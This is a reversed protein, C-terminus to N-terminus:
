ECCVVHSKELVYREGTAPEYKVLAGFITFVIRSGQIRPAQSKPPPDFAQPSIQSEISDDIVTECPMSECKFDSTSKRLVLALKYADECLRRISEFHIPSTDKFPEPCLPEMFTAIYEAFLRPMKNRGGLWNACEVTRRRWEHIDSANGIDNNSGASGYACKKQPLGKACSFLEEEFNALNKELDGGLGFNPRQFIGVQLMKFIQARMILIKKANPVSQHMWSMKFFAKQEEFLPGKDIQIPNPPNSYQKQVIRQIQERLDCFSKIVVADMPEDDNQGHKIFIDRYKTNQKQLQQKQDEVEALRKQLNDTQKTIDKKEQEARAAEKILSKNASQLECIKREVDDLISSSDFNM